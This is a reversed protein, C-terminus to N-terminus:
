TWALYDGQEVTVEPHSNRFSWFIVISDFRIGRHTHTHTHSLSLSLPSSSPLNGLLRSGQKRTQLLLLQADLAIYWLWISARRYILLVSTKSLFLYPVSSTPRRTVCPSLLRCYKANNWSITQTAIWKRIIYGSLLRSWLEGGTGETCRSWTSWVVAKLKRHKISM